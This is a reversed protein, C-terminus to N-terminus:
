KRPHLQGYGQEEILEAYEDDNLNAPLFAYDQTAEWPTIDCLTGDSARVVSHSLFKAFELGPLEFYLWGRVAAYDPNHECFYTVNHHCMNREPKWDGVSLHIKAVFAAESARLMLSQGYAEPDVNAM